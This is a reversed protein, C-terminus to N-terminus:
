YANTEFYKLIARCLAEAEAQRGQESSVVALDGANSLYCFESMIAPVGYSAATNLMYLKPREITGRINMGLGRYEELILTGMEHSQSYTPMDSSQILLESGTVKASSTSNHHVSIIFDLPESVCLGAVYNKRDSGQLTTVTDTRTMLVTAGAEKLAQELREAVDLNLHNEDWSGGSAGPDSGGHGADVLIVLQGDINSRSTTEEETPEEPEQATNNEDTPEDSPTDPQTPETQENDSPTTPETEEPTDPETPTPEDPTEESPLETRSGILVTNTADNWDVDFSLADALDRLKFYNNDNITYASLSLGSGNMQISATSTSIKLGSTVSASKMEGGVTEYDTGPILHICQNAQDWTVNFAAGKGSLLYAVDRLKYYNYGDINYGEPQVSEGDLLVLHTSLAVKPTAAVVPTQSVTQAAETTVSSSIGRDAAHVGCLLASCLIAATLSKFTNM